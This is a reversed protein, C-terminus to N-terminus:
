KGWDFIRKKLDGVISEPELPKPPKPPPMKGDAIEVQRAFGAKGYVAEFVCRECVGVLVYNTSQAQTITHILHGQRKCHPCESLDDRSAASFIM